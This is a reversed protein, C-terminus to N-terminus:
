WYSMRSRRELRMPNHLPLTLRVRAVGKNIDPHDVQLVEGITEGILKTTPTTTLAAPLREIEMWIWVFDLPVVIIDFLGNYDNILIMVRQYGWPGGNKVRNLDRENAFTFLFRDGRPQVEMPTSLRWMSRVVVKFSDFTVARASNLRGVLYFRPTVFGKKLCKLNGLDVPENGLSLKSVLSATM